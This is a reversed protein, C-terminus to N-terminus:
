QINGQIFSMISPGHGIAAGAVIWTIKDLKAKIEKQGEELHQIRVEQVADLKQNTQLEQM